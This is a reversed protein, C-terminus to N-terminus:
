DCYTALEKRLIPYAGRLNELHENIEDEDSM